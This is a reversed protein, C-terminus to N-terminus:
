LMNSGNKLVDFIVIVGLCFVVLLCVIKAFKYM